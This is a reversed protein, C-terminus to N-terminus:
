NIFKTISVQKGIEPRLIKMIDDLMNEVYTWYRKYDIPLKKIDRGEWVPEVDGGHVWVYRVKGEFGKGLRDAKRYARAHPTNGYEEINKSMGVSLVLMDDYKGRFLDKRVENLWERIDEYTANEVFIMEFIKQLVWKQFPSKDGRRVDFGMAKIKNDLTLYVYKKKKPTFLMKRFIDEVKMEFPSVKENIYKQLDDALFRAEEENTAYQGLWVFMSDTDAYLVKYGLSEVYEITNRILNRGFGTIANARDVDAFRFGEKKQIGYLANIIVKLASQLINYKPDGTQKYLKKYEQRLKFYKEELYPMVEGNFGPIDYKNNIVINPYMSTFDYDVVWDYLGAEPKKVYAGVLPKGANRVGEYNQAVYGLERLRRIILTDWLSVPGLFNMGLNVYDALFIDVNALGFMKDIEKTLWVDKMNYEELFKRDGSKEIECISRHREVKRGIGLYEGVSDLSYSPLGKVANSFPELLDVPQIRNIIRRPKGSIGLKQFRGRIHGWDFDFNWGAAISIGNKELWLSFDVLMDNESDYDRWYFWNEKGTVTIVGISVIRYEGYEKPFGNCDDTEIDVYALNKDSLSIKISEDIMLRRAYPIDAEFTDVGIEYMRDRIEPIVRPDSVYVVDVPEKTKTNLFDVSFREEIYDKYEAPIDKKREIFFHPLFKSEVFEYKKGRLGFLYIGDDFVSYTVNSNFRIIGM